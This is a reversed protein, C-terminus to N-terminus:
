EIPTNILAILGTSSKLAALELFLRHKLDYIEINPNFKVIEKIELSDIKEDRIFCEIDKKAKLFTNILHPGVLITKNKEKRFSKKTAIRKFYKYSANHKTDIIKNTM